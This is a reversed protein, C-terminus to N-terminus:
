CPPRVIFCDVKASSSCSQFFCRVRRSTNWEEYGGCVPASDGESLSPGMMAVFGRISGALGATKRRPNPHSSIM